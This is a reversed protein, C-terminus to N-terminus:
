TYFISQNLRFPLLVDYICHFCSVSVLSYMFYFNFTVKAAVWSESSPSFFILSIIADVTVIRHVVKTRMCYCCFLALVRLLFYFLYIINRMTHWMTCSIKMTLSAIWHLANHKTYATIHKRKKREEGVSEIRNLHSCRTWIKWEQQINQATTTTAKKDAKRM